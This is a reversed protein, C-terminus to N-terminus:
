FFILVSDRNGVVSQSEQLYVWIALHGPSKHEWNLVRPSYVRIHTEAGKSRLPSSRCNYNDEWKHIVWM